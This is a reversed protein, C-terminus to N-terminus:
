GWIKFLLSIVAYIITVIFIGKATKDKQVNTYITFLIINVLLCPITLSTVLQKNQQLAHIFDAITFQNFKWFYFGVFGLLPGIAGLILGLYLEDKKLFEM